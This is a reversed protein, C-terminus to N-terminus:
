KRKFSKFQLHVYLNENKNLLSPSPLRSHLILLKFKHYIVESCTVYLCTDIIISIRLTKFSEEQIKSDTDSSYMRTEKATFLVTSTESPLVM